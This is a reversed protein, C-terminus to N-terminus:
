SAKRADVFRILAQNVLESQRRMWDSDPRQAKDLAWRDVEESVAKYKTAAGTEGFRLIAVHDDPSMEGITTRVADREMQRLKDTSIRVQGSEQARNTTDRALEAPDAHSLMRQILRRGTPSAFFATSREIEAPTLREALMKAKHENVGTVFRQCFERALPRAADIAAKAAGPYQREIGAAGSDVVFVQAIGAEWGRMNAAVMLENPNTLAVLARAKPLRAAIEADSPRAPAAPPGPPAAQASAASAMSLLSVALCALRAHNM